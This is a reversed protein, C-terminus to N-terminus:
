TPPQYIGKEHKTSPKNYYNTVTLLGCGSRGQKWSVLWLTYFKHARTNANKFCKVLTLTLMSPESICICSNHWRTASSLSNLWLNERKITRSDIRFWECGRHHRSHLGFIAGILIGKGQTWKQKEEKKKELHHASSWRHGDDGGHVM